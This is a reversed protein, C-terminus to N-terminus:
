SSIISRLPLADEDNVPDLQTLGDLKDFESSLNFNPSDNM